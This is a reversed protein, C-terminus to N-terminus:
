QKKSKRLVSKAVRWLDKFEKTKFFIVINLLNPILVCVFMNFIVQALLCRKSFTMKATVYSLVSAMSSIVQNKCAWAGIQYCVFSYVATLGTYLAFKLHYTKVSKRFVENYVLYPQVWYPIAMIGVINGIMVGAIGLPKLLILSAAFTVVAGFIAIYKDPDYIGACNKAMGISQRIGYVYLYGAMAVITGMGLVSESGIWLGIFPTIVSVFSCLIFSYILFNFFYLVNFSSYVKQKGETSLLNGFSASISNFIENTVAMLALVIMMHSGYKSIVTLGLLCEIVVYSFVTTSYSTVKHIFLAKMNKFLDKKEINPLKTKTKLNIFPYKKNFIHSIIVNEILKSFIRCAIYLEFSGFIQLVAIQSIFMFVQAATHINNNIYNKQDAIIMSRKHFYLYSAVVDLVYLMFIESLWLKSFGDQRPMVVFYVAILGVSFVVAAIIMYAKRLFCLIVSVQNWDKNAIPKYLKYVIGIGLGMEVIALGEIIRPFYSEIGSIEMGLIDIFRNRAIFSGLMIIAYSFCGAMSNILSNKTRM